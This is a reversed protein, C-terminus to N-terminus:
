PERLRVSTSSVISLMYFAFHCTSIFSFGHRRSSQQRSLTGVRQQQQSLTGIRQQQQINAHSALTQITRAASSKITYYRLALPPTRTYDTNQCREDPVYVCTM